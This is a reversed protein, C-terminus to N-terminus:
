SCTTLGALPKTESIKNSYQDYSYCTRLSVGGSSVVKGRLLLNDPTGDAGYQYTTVAMPASTDCALANSGAVTQCDTESAALWIPSSAAVLAGASNKIYAYKQVYTFLKLPRAAGVSPAPDLESLRGGWTAYTYDTENGNPDIISLPEAINQYTSSGTLDGYSYQTVHNSLGGNGGPVETVTLPQNFPGGRKYIYGNGAPLYESMLTSGYHISPPNITQYDQGGTYVYGSTRGDADTASVPSTGTFTFHSTAGTPDTVTAYNNGDEPPTQDSSLDLEQGWSIHWTSGDALTQVLNQGDTYSNSIQCTSSGPPIVCSIAAGVHQYSTTNNLPDTVSALLGNSYGYSVKLAIGSCTSSTTVYNRSTDIGCADSVLHRTRGLIPDSYDVYDFLIAYGSSDSVLKLENNVYSFTRLRGDHFKISAIRQSYINYVGAGQVGAVQVSPNFTFIDGDSNTYVYANNALALLGTEADGSDSPISAVTGTKQSQVYLGSAGLGTHVIPKAETPFYPPNAKSYTPDVFIDFSNSTHAGYFMDDPDRTVGGGGSYFRDLSLTGISLDTVQYTFSGDAINVGSPTMTYAKPPTADGTQAKAPSATCLTVSLAILSCAQGLFIPRRLLDAQDMKNTAVVAGVSQEM